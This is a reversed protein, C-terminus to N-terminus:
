GHQQTLGVEVRHERKTEQVGGSEESAGHGKSAGGEHFGLYQSECLEEGLGRREM